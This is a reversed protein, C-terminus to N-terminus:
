LLAVVDDVVTVVEALDPLKALYEEPAARGSAGALQASIAGITDTDGGLSVATSIVCELAEGATTLAVFLAVPVTHTRLGANTMKHM